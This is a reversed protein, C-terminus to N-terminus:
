ESESFTRNLAAGFVRTINASNFLRLHSVVEPLLRYNQRLMKESYDLIEVYSPTVRGDDIKALWDRSELVLGHYESQICEVWSGDEGRIFDRPLESVVPIRWQNGDGLELWPGFHPFPRNVDEPTVPSANWFGVWYRGRGQGEPGNPLAPIWTQETDKFHMPQNKGTKRWACLLGPKGEPGPSIPIAEAGPVHDALGVETLAAPATKHDAGPIFVLYHV